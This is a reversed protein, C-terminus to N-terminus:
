DQRQYVRDLGDSHILELTGETVIWETNSAASAIESATYIRTEFNNTSDTCGSVGVEGGTPTLTIVSGNGDFTGEWFLVVICGSTADTFTVDSRYTMNQNFRITSTGPFVGHGNVAVQNSLWTGYIEALPDNSNDDNNCGHLPIMLVFTM